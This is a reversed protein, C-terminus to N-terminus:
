PCPCTRIRNLSAIMHFLKLGTFDGYCCSALTVLKLVSLVIVCPMVSAEHPHSAADPVSLRHSQSICPSHRQSAVQVQLALTQLACVFLKLYNSGSVLNSIRYAFNQFDYLIERFQAM